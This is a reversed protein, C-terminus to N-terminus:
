YLELTYESMVICNVPLVLPRDVTSYLPEQHLAEQGTPLDRGTRAYVQAALRRICNLPSDKWLPTSHPQCKMFFPRNLFKEVDYIFYLLM